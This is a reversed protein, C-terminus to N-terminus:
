FVHAVVRKNGIHIRVVYKGCIRFKGNSCQTAGELFFDVLFFPTDTISIDQACRLPDQPITVAQKHPEM